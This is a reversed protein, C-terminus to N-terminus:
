RAVAADTTSPPASEEAPDTPTPAAVDVAPMSADATIKVTALRRRVRRQESDSSTSVTADDGADQARTPREIGSSSARENAVRPIPEKAQHAVRNRTGQFSARTRPSLAVSFAVAEEPPRGGATVSGASASSAKAAAAPAPTSPYVNAPDGGSVPDAVITGCLEPWIASAYEVSSVIWYMPGLESKPNQNQERLYAVSVQWEVGQRM